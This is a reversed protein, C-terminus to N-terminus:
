AASDPINFNEDNSLPKGLKGPLPESSDQSSQSRIASRESPVPRAEKGELVQLGASLGGGSNEFVPVNSESAILDEDSSHGLGFPVWTALPAGTSHQIGRKEADALLGSITKNDEGTLYAPAYNPNFKIKGSTGSLTKMFDQGSHGPLAILAGNPSRMLTMPITGGQIGLYASRSGAPMSVWNQGYAQRMPILNTTKGNNKDAIPLNLGASEVFPSALWTFFVAMCFFSLYATASAMRKALHAAFSPVKTTNQM